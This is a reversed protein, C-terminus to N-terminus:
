VGIFLEDLTRKSYYHSDNIKEMNEVVEDLHSKCYVKLQTSYMGCRACVRVGCIHCLNDVPLNNSIIDCYICAGFSTNM